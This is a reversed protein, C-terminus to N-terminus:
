DISFYPRSNLKCCFVSTFLLNFVWYVVLLVSGLRDREGVLLLLLRVISFQIM